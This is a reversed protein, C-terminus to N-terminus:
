SLSYGFAYNVAKTDTPHKSPVVATKVQFSDWEALIVLRNEYCSLPSSYQAWAVFAVPVHSCVFLALM